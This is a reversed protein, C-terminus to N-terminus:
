QGGELRAVAENLPGLEPALVDALLLDGRRPKGKPPPAAHDPYPGDPVIHM